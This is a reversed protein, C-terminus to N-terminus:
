DEKEEEAPKPKEEPNGPAPNGTGPNSSALPTREFPPRTGEVKKYEKALEEFGKNIKEQLTQLEALIVNGRDTLMYEANKLEGVIHGQKLMRKKFRDLDEGVFGTLEHNDHGEKACIAKYQKPIKIV